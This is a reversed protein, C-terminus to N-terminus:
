RSGRLPKPATREKQAKRLTDEREVTAAATPQKSKKNKGVSRRIGVAHGEKVLLATRGNLM